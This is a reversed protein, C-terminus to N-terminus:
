GSFDTLHPRFWSKNATNFSALSGQKRWRLGGVPSAMLTIFETTSYRRCKQSALTSMGWKGDQNVFYYTLGGVRSYLTGESYVGDLSDLM